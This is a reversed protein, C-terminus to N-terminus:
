RVGSNRVRAIVSVLHRDGPHGSYRSNVTYINVYKSQNPNFIIISVEVKSVFGKILPGELVEELAQMVKSQNVNKDVTELKPSKPLDLKDIFEGETKITLIARVKLLQFLFYDFFPKFFIVVLRASFKFVFTILETFSIYGENYVHVCSWLTICAPVVISDKIPRSLNSRAFFQLLYANPSGESLFGTTEIPRGAM